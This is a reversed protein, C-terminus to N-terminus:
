SPNELLQFYIKQHAIKIIINIDRSESDSARDMHCGRGLGFGPYTKPIGFKREHIWNCLIINAISQEPCHLECEGSNYGYELENLLTQDRCYFLWELLFDLSAKSKKFVLLNVICQPYNRTFVYNKSLKRLTYEKCWKKLCTGYNHDVKLSKNIDWDDPVDIETPIFFDFRCIKLWDQCKQGIGKVNKYSPYKEYDIDKYVIIDGLDLKEIENLIIAPKWAQNGVVGWPGSNPVKKSFSKHLFSSVIRPTYISINDFEDKFLEITPEIRGSLDKGDDHPYGESCFSVFNIKM